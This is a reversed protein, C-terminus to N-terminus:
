RVFVKQGGVIYFGPTLSRIDAETADHILLIGSINYIDVPANTSPIDIVSSTAVTATTSLTTVLGRYDATVTIETEGETESATLQYIGPASRDVTVANGDAGLTYVILHPNGVALSTETNLDLTMSEGPALNIVPLNIEPATFDPYVAMAPFWYYNDLKVTRDTIFKGNEPDVRYIWNQQYHTGYGAEIATLVIEGTAPDVSIGEGYLVQKTGDTSLPLTIFDPNYDGNDFDYRAVRTIDRTDTTFYVVNRTIDAALSAKRWTGWVDTLKSKDAPIDIETLEFTVPDIRVFEASENGCAAYLSGDATVVFAMANFADIITTEDTEPNIALVGDLKHVAFVYDGYRIMDGCATITGAASGSLVEGITMDTLDVPFIGNSTSMYGKKGNVGCFARAGSTKEGFSDIQGAWELSEADMATLIGGTVDGSTTAQKSVVYLRNGFRDGYQTTTGLIHGNNQLAFADYTVDGDSSLFNVSGTDHGFWGENVFIIGQTFDPIGPRAVIFSVEIAPLEATLGDNDITLIYGEPIIATYDGDPLLVGAAPSIEVSKGSVKGALDWTMSGDASIIKPTGTQQNLSVRKLGTGTVEVTVRRFRKLIEGNTPTINYEFTQPEKIIYTATIESRNELRNGEADMGYFYGAPITLVWEGTECEAGTPLTLVVETESLQSHSLNYVTEGNDLTASLEDNDTVVLTTMVGAAKVTIDPMTQSVTLSAPSLECAFNLTPDIIFSLTIEPNINETGYEKLIGAPITVTWIGATTLVLPHGQPLEPDAFVIEMTRYGNSLSVNDGKYTVNGDSLTLVSADIPFDLGETLNPFTISVREMKGTRSEPAPISTMEGFPLIEPTPDPEPEPDVPSIGGEITYTISIPQNVAATKFDTFAGEPIDLRYVGNINITVPETTGEPGFYMVAYDDWKFDNKVVTYVTPTDDSERTLTIGSFNCQDLGWATDPFDIRVSPIETVTGPAPTILYNDMPGAMAIPATIAGLAM